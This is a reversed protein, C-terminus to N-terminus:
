EKAVQGRVHTLFAPPDVVSLSPYSSRFSADSM